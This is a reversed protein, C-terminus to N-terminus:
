KEICYLRQPSADCSVYQGASSAHAWAQTRDCANGRYSNTDYGSNGGARWSNCGYGAGYFADLLSFAYPPHFNFGIGTWVGCDHNSCVRLVMSVGNRICNTNTIEEGYENWGIKSKIRGSDFLSFYDDAIVTGTVTKIPGIDRAPLGVGFDATGRPGGLVAQWEGKLRAANAAEQCKADAGKWGGLYGSFKEKTTFMRVERLPAQSACYVRASGRCNKRGTDFPSTRTDSRIWQNGTLSGVKGFPASDSDPRCNFHGLGQGGVWYCGDDSGWGSCHNHASETSFSWVPTDDDVTATKEDQNIPVKPATTGDALAQFTDFVVTGDMRRVPSEFSVPAWFAPDGYWHGSILPFWKGELGAAKALATCKERAGFFGGLNGTYSASSVFIQIGPPEECNGDGDPDVYNGVCPCSYREGNPKNQCVTNEYKGCDHAGEACEDRDVCANGELKWGDGDCRCEFGLGDPKNVCSAASGACTATPPDESGEGLCEDFDACAFGDGFWRQPCTCKYGLGRPGEGPQLDQCSSPFYCRNTDSSACENVNDTCDGDSDWDAWGAECGCEWAGATNVCAANEGPCVGLGIRCEDIDQCRGTAGRAQGAPCKGSVQPGGLNLGGQFWVDRKAELKVAVRTELLEAPGDIRLERYGVPGPGHELATDPVLGVILHRGVSLAPTTVTGSAEAKGSVKLGGGTARVHAGGDLTAGGALVSLGGSEVRLAAALLLHGEVLLSDAFRAEGAAALASVAGESTTVTTTGAVTFRGDVDSDGTVEMAPAKTYSLGLVVLPGGVVMEGRVETHRSPMRLTELPRLTAEHEHYRAVQVDFAEPDGTPTWTLFGGDAYDALEAPTYLAEAEAETPSVLEFWGTGLARRVLADRDAAGRHAYNAEVAVEARQAAQAIHAFGASLAYPATGLSIPKLCKVMGDLCIQLALDGGGALLEDFACSSGQGVRLNLVSDRVKVGELQEECVPLNGRLVRVRALVFDRDGVPLDAQSLRAQVELYGPVPSLDLARISFACPLDAPRSNGESVGQDGTSDCSRTQARAAPSLLALVALVLLPLRLRNM